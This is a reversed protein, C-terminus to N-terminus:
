GSLLRATRLCDIGYGPRDEDPDWVGDFVARLEALVDDDHFLELVELQRRGFRDRRRLPSRAPPVLEFPVAVLAPRNLAYAEWQDTVMAALAGSTLQDGSAVPWRHVLVAMRPGPPVVQEAAAAELVTLADEVLREVSMTVEVGLESSSPVAMAARAVGAAVLLRDSPALDAVSRATAVLRARLQAVTEARERWARVLKPWDQRPCRDCVGAPVDAFRAQWETVQHGYRRCLLPCREAVHALDPRLTDAWLVM